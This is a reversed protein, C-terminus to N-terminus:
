KLHHIKMFLPDNYLSIFAHRSGPYRYPGNDFKFLVDYYKVIHGLKMFNQGFTISKSLPHRQVSTYVHTSFYTRRYTCASPHVNLAGAM